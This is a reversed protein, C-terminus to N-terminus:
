AVKIYSAEAASSEEYCALWEKPKKYPHMAPTFTQACNPKWKKNKKQDNPRDGPCAGDTKLDFAEVKLAGNKELCIEAFLDEGMPGYKGGKIGLTWPLTKNCKDINVLLSSFAIESFVELSGFFGYDVQKCNTLFSGTTARPILKIRPVLRSPFFVADADVKVTWAYAKYKGEQGIAKWVQQFIGTNVWTGTYKRKAFHFTGDVDHVMKTSYGGGLSAVTDSYVDYADCAFVHWKRAYAETLLDLEYNKKTSGTNETYVAFCFLSVGATDDFDVKSRSLVECSGKPCTKACTAHTSSEKFCRYNTVKCCKTFLCNDGVKSCMDREATDVQWNPQASDIQALQKFAGDETSSDGRVPAAALRTQHFLAAGIAALLLAALIAIGTKKRGLEPRRLMELVSDEDSSPEGLVQKEFDAQAAM